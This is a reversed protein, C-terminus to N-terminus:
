KENEIEIGYMGALREIEAAPIFVNRGMKVGKLIGNRYWKWATAHSVGFMKAVESLKYFKRDIKMRNYM